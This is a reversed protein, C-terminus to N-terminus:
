QILFRLKKVGGYYFADTCIKTVTKGDIESPIVLDERIGTYAALAITGDELEYYSCELVPDISVIYEKEGITLISGEYVWGSEYKIGNETIEVKASEPDDDFRFSVYRGSYNSTDIGDEFAVYGDVAGALEGATVSTECGSDLITLYTCQLSGFIEAVNSFTLVKEPITLYVTKGCSKFATDSITEIDAPITLYTFGPCGCFAYDGISKLSDPLDIKILNYCQNFAYTEIKEVGQPITVSEINRCNEFAREGISTVSLGDISDPIMLVTDTGDYKTITVTEEETIKYYYGDDTKPDTMEAKITMFNGLVNSIPTVPVNMAVTVGALTVALIKKKKSIKDFM